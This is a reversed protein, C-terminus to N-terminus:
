RLATALRGGAGLVAPWDCRRALLRLPPVALARGSLAVVSGCASGRGAPWPGQVAPAAALVAPASATDACCCGGAGAAASLSGLGAAPVLGTAGTYRPKQQRSALPRRQGHSAVQSGGQRQGAAGGQGGAAAAVLRTPAALGGAMGLAALGGAVRGAVGAEWVAGAASCGCGGSGCGGGCCCCGRLTSPSELLRPRGLGGACGPQWFGVALLEGCCGVRSTRLGPLLLWSAASPREESRQAPAM